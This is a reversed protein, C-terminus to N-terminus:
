INDTNALNDARLSYMKIDAYWHSFKNEPSISYTFFHIPLYLSILVSLPPYFASM